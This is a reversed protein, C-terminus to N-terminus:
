PLEGKRWPRYRNKNDKKATHGNRRNFARFLVWDPNFGAKDHHTCCKSIVAPLAATLMLQIAEWTM